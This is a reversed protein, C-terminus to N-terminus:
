LEEQEGVFSIKYRKMKMSLTTKKVGLLRAARSQHGNTRQLADSILDKEFRQVEDHLRLPHKSSTQHTRAISEVERLATSLMMRLTRLRTNLTAEERLHLLASADDKVVTLGTRSSKTEKRLRALRNRGGTQM